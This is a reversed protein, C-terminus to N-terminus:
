TVYDSYVLVHTHATNVQVTYHDLLEQSRGLLERMPGEFATGDRFVAMELEVESQGFSQENTSELAHGAAISNDQSRLTDSGISAASQELHQDTVIQSQDLNLDTVVLSQDLPDTRLRAQAEKWLHIARSLHEVGISAPFYIM